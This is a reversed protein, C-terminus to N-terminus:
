IGREKNYGFHHHKQEINPSPASTVETSAVLPASILIDGSAVAKLKTIANDYDDKRAKAATAGSVRKTIYYLVLDIAANKLEGPITGVAGLTNRKRCYGRVEMTVDSLVSAIIGAVTQTNTTATSLNAQFESDNIYNEVDSQALTIWTDTM